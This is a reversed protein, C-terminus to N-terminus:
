SGKGMGDEDEEIRALVQAIAKVLPKLGLGTVASIM